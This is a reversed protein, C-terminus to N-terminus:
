KKSAILDSLFNNLYGLCSQKKIELGTINLNKIKEIRHKALVIEQEIDINPKIDIDGGDCIQSLPKRNLLLVNQPKTDLANSIAESLEEAFSVNSTYSLAEALLLWSYNGQQTRSLFLNWFKANSHMSIAVADPGKSEIIKLIAEPKIKDNLVLSDNAWLLCPTISVIILLLTRIHLLSYLSTKFIQLKKFIVLIVGIKKSSAPSHLASYGALSGNNKAYEEVDIM